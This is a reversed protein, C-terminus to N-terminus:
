AGIVRKNFEDVLKQDHTIVIVTTGMKNIEILLEMIERPLPLIM